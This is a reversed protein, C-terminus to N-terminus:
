LVHIILGYTSLRKGGGVDAAGGGGGGGLHGWIGVPGSVEVWVEVFEDYFCYLLAKM